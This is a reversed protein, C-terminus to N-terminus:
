CIEEFCGGQGDEQSLSYASGPLDWTLGFVTTLIPEFQAGTLSVTIIPAIDPGSPNGSFGLGSNTYVVTVQEPRLTPMFSQMRAFVVDFAAADPTLDIAVNPASLWSCVPGGTGGSCSVGPFDAIPVAAGQEVGNNIAFSHGILGSPIMTTVAAARAGAQTAKEARNIEWLYRGGDIIGFLMAMALPLVLAFEAASATEDRFISRMAM